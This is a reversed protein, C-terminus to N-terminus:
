SSNSPSTNYFSDGQIIPLPSPSSSPDVETSKDLQPYTQPDKIPLPSGHNTHRQASPAASATGTFHSFPPQLAVERMEPHIALSSGLHLKFFGTQHRRHPLRAFGGLEWSLLSLRGTPLDRESETSEGLSVKLLPPLSAKSFRLVSPNSLGLLCRPQRPPPTPRSYQSKRCNQLPFQATKM